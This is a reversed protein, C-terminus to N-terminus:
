ALSEEDPEQAAPKRPAFVFCGRACGRPQRQGPQPRRLQQPLIKKPVLADIEKKATAMLWNFKPHANM